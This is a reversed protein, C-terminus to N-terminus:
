RSFSKSFTYELITLGLDLDWCLGILYLPSPTVSPQTVMSVPQAGYVCATDVYVCAAGWLELMVSVPQIVM